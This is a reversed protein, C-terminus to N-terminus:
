CYESLSRISAGTKRFRTSRFVEEINASQASEVFPLLLTKSRHQPPRLIYCFRRVMTYLEGERMQLIIILCKFNCHVRAAISFAEFLFHLASPIMEVPSQAIPSFYPKPPSLSNSSHFICDIFPRKTIKEGCIGSQRRGAHHISSHILFTAILPITKVKQQPLKPLLGFHLGPNLRTAIWIQTRLLFSKLPETQIDFYAYRLIIWNTIVCQFLAFGTAELSKWIGGRM